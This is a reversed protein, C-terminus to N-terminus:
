FRGDSVQFHTPKEYTAHGARLWEATWQVMEEVTASPEGLLARLRSSDSLLTTPGEPGVFRAERGLLAGFKLALGRVSLREGGTVNLAAPPSAAHEVLRIAFRNADGQWIVNVWGVRLDLPDGAQVARAIDLLVGYRLDIAYNLRYLLVPTGHERSAHEFLRERAVCANAYEGLPELPDEERSGPSDAPVLPYVCGTSFAVIRSGAYREMANLPAVTNMAWTRWPAQTTGFKQGALYLVNAAAPLRAAQVRDLLDCRVTQIGWARLRMELDADTFRAAAWVRGDQGLTDLGRRIMRALTPGMKGAAGLVIWDGPLRRISDLVAADPRSLADELAGLSAAPSNHNASPEMALVAGQARVPMGGLGEGRRVWGGPDRRTRPGRNVVPRRTGQGLRGSRCRTFLGGV